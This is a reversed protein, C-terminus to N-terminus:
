KLAERPSHYRKMHVACYPRKSGDPIPENCFVHPAKESCPWCCGTRVELPVPFSGALPLWADSRLHKSDAPLTGDVSRARAAAIVQPKVLTTKHRPPAGTPTATFSTM